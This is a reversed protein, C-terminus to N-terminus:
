EEMPQNFHAAHWEMVSRLEPIVIQDIVPKISRALSAREDDTTELYGLAKNKEM